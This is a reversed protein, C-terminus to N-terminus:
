VLTFRGYWANNDRQVDLVAGADHAARGLDQATM